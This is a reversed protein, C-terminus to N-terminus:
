FYGLETGWVSSQGQSSLLFNHAQAYENFAWFHSTNLPDTSISSYDGWRNDSGGLTRYYNAVGAEVLKWGGTEQYTGHSTDLPNQILVEYASAYGTYNTGNAPGSGSFSVAMEGNAGVALSPYYSRLNSGSVFTNGSIDGQNVLAVPNGGADTSLVWWHATTHGADPGSKPVIDAAVYLYGVGNVTAYVVSATRSDDADITQSSGPQPATVGNYQGLSDFAGVDIQTHVATGTASVHLVDLVKDGAGNTASNYSVLYDGSTATVFGPEVMNAPALSFLDNGVGLGAAVSPDFATPTIAQNTTVTGDNVVWMLTGGYQGGSFSFMNATLYLNGANDLGVQPFDAWSLQGGVTLSTNFHQVHWASGTADTSVAIWMDSVNGTSNQDVATVILKHNVSDYIVRPDFTFASTVFFKDLSTSTPTGLVTGGAGSRQFVQIEDNVALVVASESVASANDPPIMLYGTISAVSAM